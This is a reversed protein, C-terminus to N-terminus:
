HVPWSTDATFGGEHELHLSLTGPAPPDFEYIGPRLSDDVLARTPNSVVNLKVRGPTRVYLTIKEGPLIAAPVLNSVASDTGPLPPTATIVVPFVSESSQGIAALKYFYSVGPHVLTDSFTYEMVDKATHAEVDTLVSFNGVEEYGRYIRFSSITPSQQDLTWNIRVADPTTAHASFLSLVSSLEPLDGAAAPLVAALGLCLMMALLRSKM